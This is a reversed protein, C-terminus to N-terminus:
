SAMADLNYVPKSTMRNFAGSSADIQDRYKGNPWAEAEDIYAEV